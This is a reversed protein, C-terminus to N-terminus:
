SASNKKAQHLSHESETHVPWSSEISFGAELLASGLTDWADVRKHTFMVTLVGDEKLVRHAEGFAQSLLDEYHENALDAASKGADKTRGRSPAAVDRFLSANAVAEGEKDTLPLSCLAPWTDRLSRKLWVYFYDSCEAYMVNDYYPPDTVIA